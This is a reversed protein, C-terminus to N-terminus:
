GTEIVLDLMQQQRDILENISSYRGEDLHSAWRHQTNYRLLTEAVVNRSCISVHRSRPKGSLVVSIGVHGSDVVTEFLSIGADGRRIKPVISVTVFGVCSTTEKETWKSNVSVIPKSQRDLAETFVTGRNPKGFVLGIKM